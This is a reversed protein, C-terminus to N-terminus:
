PGAELLPLLSRAFAEKFKRGPNMLREREAADLLRGTGQVPPWAALLTFDGNQAWQPGLGAATRSGHCHHCPRGTPAITHPAYPAFAWGPGLGGGRMPRVSDLVTRGHGDVHSVLYQHRPRMPAFEGRANRGLVLGEWRRFRYGALWQGHGTASPRRWLGCWLPFPPPAAADWRLASLGYDNYFWQAHCASCALDAHLDPDHGPIANDTGPLAHLAGDRSRFAAQTGRLEMGPVDPDPAHGFGGHCAVCSPHEDPCLGMVQRGTHCDLCDMGREAHVDKALLHQAAGFSVPVPRGWSEAKQFMAAPDREFLGHLDAGTHNARHRALCAEPPPTSPHGQYPRKPGARAHGPHCAACGTARRTAQSRSPSGIHCDLCMSRLFDDVLMAPTGARPGPRPLPSLAANVSYIHGATPQAGWLHRTQNIIGALTAHLSGHVAEVEQAHCGGCRAEAFEPASPNPVVDAHDEASRPGAGAKLHCQECTPYAGHGPAVKERHCSACTRAGGSPEALATSGALAAALLLALLVALCVTLFVALAFRVLRAPASM